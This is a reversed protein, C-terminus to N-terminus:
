LRFFHATGKRFRNLICFISRVSSIIQKDAGIIRKEIRKIPAPPKFSADPAPLRFLVAAAYSDSKMRCNAKFADFPAARWIM